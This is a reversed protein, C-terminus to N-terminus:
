QQPQGLRKELAAVRLKLRELSASAMAAVGGIM